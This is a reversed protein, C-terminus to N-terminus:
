TMGKKPQISIVIDGTKVTRAPLFAGQMTAPWAKFAAEAVKYTTAVTRQIYVAPDDGSQAIKGYLTALQDQDWVVNKKREGVLDFRKDISVSVKGTDKAEAKYANEAMGAFRLGILHTYLAADTALAEKREALDDQLAIIDDVPLEKIAAETLTRAHDFTLRNHKANGPTM